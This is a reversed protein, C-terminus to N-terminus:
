LTGFRLPAGSSAAPYGSSMSLSRGTARSISQRSEQAQTFGETDLVLGMMEPYIQHDGVLLKFYRTPPQGPITELLFVTSDHQGPVPAKDAIEGCVVRCLFLAKLGDPTVPTHRLADGPNGFFMRSQRVASAALRIGPLQGSPLPAVGAWLYVENIDGDINEVSFARRSAALIFCKYQYETLVARLATGPESVGRKKIALKLNVYDCLMGSHELRSAQVLRLNPKDSLIRITQQLLDGGRPRLPHDEDFHECHPNKHFNVFYSPVQFQFAEQRLSLSQSSQSMSRMRPVGFAPNDYIREYFIVYETYIQDRDFVCFERFTGTAKRRDALVSDYQGETINKMM